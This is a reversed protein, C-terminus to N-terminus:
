ELKRLYGRLWFGVEEWFDQEYFKYKNLCYTLKRMEKLNYKKQRIHMLLQENLQRYLQVVRERVWDDHM